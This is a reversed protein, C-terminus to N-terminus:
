LAKFYRAVPSLTYGAKEYTRRAPAHGPDGGTEIMAVPIGQDRMWDTAMTTLTTGLGSTQHEPAVAIMEIEGIRGDEHIAVAVFAAVTGDVDAVWVHKADDTVVREVDVRQYARWDDGHLRDFIDDGMVTRTSDFVPAWADLSLRIVAELDTSRFERIGPAPTVGSDSLNPPTGVALGFAAATGTRDYAMARLERRNITGAM